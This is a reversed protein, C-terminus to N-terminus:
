PFVFPALFGKAREAAACALKNDTHGRDPSFVSRQLEVMHALMTQVAGPDSLALDFSESPDKVVNFLCAPSCNKPVNPWSGSSNPYQPGTVADWGLAGAIIKLGSSANIYAQILTDGTFQNGSSSTALVVERRPSTSNKGSILPWLDVGSVPPLGAAAGRSDFSSVGALGTITTFFDEISTFGPEVAGRRSQPILGGSAFANVRVGGEWNSFKGGRLPWNNGGGGLSGGNDSSALIVSNEWLGAAKWASIVRGVMDDLHSTKAAYLARSTDNIFAKFKDAYAQPVQELPIHTNHFSVFAFLPQASPAHGGIVAEMRSAVLEDFYVCQPTQNSQSCSWSNNLGVAPGSDQWLDTLEGLGPCREVSSDPQFNWFDIAPDFYGISSDYGRGQPTHDLTALGAHWKGAMHCSYNAKKLQTALGTMNRPIGAFGSVQDKANYAM